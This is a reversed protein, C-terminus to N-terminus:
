FLYSFTINVTATSITEKTSSIFSDTGVKYYYNNRLSKWVGYAIGANVVLDNDITFSVGSTLYLQDNETRDNKYPSPNYIAGGRIKLGLDWFTIEGGGRLNTTPRFISKILRNESKLDPNNNTFEMQTWDTYEADAALLLWDLAQVAVGSSFVIPTRITYRTAGPLSYKYTSGDDFWSQGEDSFEESIDYNIPTKLTFGIRYSGQKRYTIGLLFNYGTLEGKISSIYSFMDFDNPAPRNYYNKSDQEIFQREYSYSGTMLNLTVGFSFNKAVDVACGFAWTNIGGGETIQVEQQVNDIVVPKLFKGTSDINALYLQYPINNDLYNNLDSSSM